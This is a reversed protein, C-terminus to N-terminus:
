RKKGKYRAELGAVKGAFAKDNILKTITVAFADLMIGSHANAARVVFNNPATGTHQVARTNVGGFALVKFRKGAPIRHPRTGHVVFPAYWADKKGQKPGVIARPRNWRSKRGVILKSMTPTKGDGVPAAAAVYKQVSRAANVVAFQEFKVLTRKSFAHSLAGYLRDIQDEASHDFQFPASSSLPM